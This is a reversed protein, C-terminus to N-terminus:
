ERSAQNAVFVSAGDTAVGEPGLGVPFSSQAQSAPATFFMALVAGLVGNILRNMRM